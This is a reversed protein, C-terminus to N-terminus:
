VFTKTLTIIINLYTLFLYPSSKSSKPTSGFLKPASIESLRIYKFQNLLTTGRNRVLSKPEPELGPGFNAVKRFNRPGSGVEWFVEDVEGM